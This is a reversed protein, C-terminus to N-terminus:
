EGDDDSKSVEPGRIPIRVTFTTGRGPESSVELSGGHAEVLGYSVSLGLGTGRREPDEERDRSTWFPDFVHELQDAPIGVGEDCVRVVVEDAEQDVAVALRGGRPMAQIANTLLNLLVQHLAGGDARAPVEANGTREIRVGARRARADLLRVAEDLVQAVDVPGVSQVRQRAFRLLQETVGAGRSAARVIVELAERRDPDTEGELAEIASGRIGGIVNNFEHAVGGALTGLSAMKAAHVLQRQARRLDSLAREVHATKRSVELELNENWRLLEANKSAIEDRSERLRDVMAAFDAALDGVEDRSRVGVQVALDGGAIARAAGRLDRLPRVVVRLLGAGLVAIAVALALGTLLVADQRVGRAFEEGLATQQAILRTAEADIRVAARRQMERALIEVNARLRESRTADREQLATRLREFDDGDGYLSLPLDALLRNRADTTYQILDVLLETSQETGEGSLARMADASRAILQDSSHLFADRIRPGVWLLLVAATAVGVMVLALALKARLGLVANM